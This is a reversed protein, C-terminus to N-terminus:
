FILKEGMLSFYLPKMGFRDKALYIVDEKKDFLCFAFMGRLSNISDIGQEEYLHVLVEGDSKTKFIHGKKVLEERIGRFNYIEGNIVLFITKDENFLPQSGTKPDIISLRRIGLMIKSKDDIFHGEEDPGRHIMADLMKRTFEFSDFGITGCIGCM